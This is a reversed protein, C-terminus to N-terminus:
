KGTLTIWLDPSNLLSVCDDDEIEINRDQFENRSRHHLLALRSDALANTAVPTRAFM